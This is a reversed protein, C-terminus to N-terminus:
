SCSLPARQQTLRRHQEAALRKAKRRVREGFAEPDAAGAAAAAETWTTGEGAAYAFVVRQEAGSMGRLLANLREDEFVGGTTPSLLDVDTAVLDHLSLGGLDADLSLVRGYQTRRRWVPVLQRHLARAEARLAGLATSPLHGNQWLPDCWSGVLATSVAERWRKSRPLVLVWTSLRDLPHNGLEREIPYRQPESHTWGRSDLSQLLAPYAWSLSKPATQYGLRLGDDTTTVYTAGPHTRLVEDYVGPPIHFHSEQSPEDKM